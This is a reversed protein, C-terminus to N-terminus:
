GIKKDTENWYLQNEDANKKLEDTQKPEKRNQLKENLKNDKKWIKDTENEPQMM